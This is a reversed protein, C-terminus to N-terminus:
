SPVCGLSIDGQSVVNLEIFKKINSKVIIGM